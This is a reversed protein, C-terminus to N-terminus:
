NSPGTIKCSEFPKKVLINQPYKAKNTAVAQEAVIRAAEERAAQEEASRPELNYALTAGKGPIYEARSNLLQDEPGIPTDYRPPAAPGGVTPMTEPSLAALGTPSTPYELNLIM